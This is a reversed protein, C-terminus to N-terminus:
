FDKGLLQQVDKSLKVGQGLYYTILELNLSCLKEGNENPLPDYTGVQAIPPIHKVGEPYHIQRYVDILIQQIHLTITIM